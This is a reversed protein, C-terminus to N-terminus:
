AGGLDGLKMAQFRRLAELEAKEQEASALARAALREEEAVAKDLAAAREKRGTAAARAHAYEQRARAAQAEAENLANLAAREVVELKRLADPEMDLDRKAQARQAKLRHIKAVAEDAAIAREVKAIRKSPDYNAGHRGPDMRTVAGISRWVETAKEAALEAEAVQRDLDDILDRRDALTPTATRAM